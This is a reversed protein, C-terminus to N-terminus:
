KSNEDVRSFDYGPYDIRQHFIGILIKSFSAKVHTIDRLRFDCQNLQNDGVSDDIWRNIGGQVHADAIQGVRYDPIISHRFEILVSSICVIACLEILIDPWMRNSRLNELPQLYWRTRPIERLREFRAFTAM